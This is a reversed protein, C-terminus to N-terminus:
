RRSGKIIYKVTKDEGEYFGSNKGRGRNYARNKGAKAWFPDHSGEASHGNLLRGTKKNISAMTRNAGSNITDELWTGLGPDGVTQLGRRSDGLSPLLGEKQFRGHFYEKDAQRRQWLNKAKKKAAREAKKIAGAKSFEKQAYDYGDELGSYYVEELIDDLESDGTSFLKEDEEEYYNNKFLIM